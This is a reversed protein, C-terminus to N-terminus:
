MIYSMANYRRSYIWEGHPPIVTLFPSKINYISGKEQAHTRVYTHTHTCIQSRVCFIQKMLADRCHFIILWFPDIHNSHSPITHAASSYIKPIKINHAHSLLSSPRSLPLFLSAPVNIIRYLNKNPSLSYNIIPEIYKSRKWCVSKTRQQLSPTLCGTNTPSKSLKWREQVQLSLLSEKLM